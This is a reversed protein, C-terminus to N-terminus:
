CNGSVPNNITMVSINIVVNKTVDASEAVNTKPICVVLPLKFGGFITFTTQPNKKDADATTKISDPPNFAICVAM